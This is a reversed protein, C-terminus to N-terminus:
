QGKMSEFSLYGKESTSHFPIRKKRCSEKWRRISSKYNSGDAIVLKPHLQELLRDLHIKPSYTLMLYDAQEPYIALSDMVYLSRNNFLYTNSIPHYLITDLHEAIAFDKIWTIENKPQGAYVNLNSGKQHLVISNKTQHGVILQEENQVLLLFSIGHIQFGIIAIAVLVWRKFNGNSLANILAIVLIYGLVMQFADFSINRFIFGEQQAIWSVLANMQRILFDYAIVLHQPVLELLSLVITLIGMGLLIGLFPVILLNSVFFLAPFQHFYFLSLPLVGLQASISVSLLQWSKRILWNEPYWFRQLKPYIWIIAFVAAYSMQFGVQFLFLPHILLIFFMSLGLINFSNAPRNLYMAYAFFSFMTVARVISPSLGAILAYSWLLLILLILKISKGNPIYELPSLLFELLLLLIGVHLGSVALIHIAGADKYDDFTNTSIADRKGLILAQIVSFEDSGFKQKELNSIIHDRLENAFGYLTRTPRDKILLQGENKARFQYQIGNKALFGKYDFTHPNRPPPIEELKGIFVIEDDVIVTSGSHNGTLNLVVKGKTPKGNQFQIDAIYRKSYPTPKLAEIVKLDWFQTTDMNTVKITNTTSLGTVFVGIATVILIALLEFYPPGQKDHRKSALYFFPLLSLIFILAPNPPINLYFGGVIGTILCITLQISVFNFQQM